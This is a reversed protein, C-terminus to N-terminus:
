AVAKRRRGLMALGAVGSGLLMLTGPEPVFTLTLKGVLPLNESGGVNTRTLTPTVLVITGGGGATRQDTGTTSALIRGAFPGTTGIVQVNGTTWGGGFVTIAM